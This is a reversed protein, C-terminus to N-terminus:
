ADRAVASLQEVTRRLEGVVPSDITFANALERYYWLVGERGGTFREWLSEGIERLDSLIARANYLKDCASVLQVAPSASKLHEIYQRKRERWPPKSADLSDSCGRVIERVTSGFRAEIQALMAHGGQDEAADHLLAAIAQDEDGGHELVLSSVGMVHAFYPVNSGKRIQERHTAFAFAFADAYRQSLIM